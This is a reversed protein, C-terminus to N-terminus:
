TAEPGGGGNLARCERDFEHLRGGVRALITAVALGHIVPWTIPSFVPMLFAVIMLMVGMFYFWGWHTAGHAFLGLGLVTTLPPYFPLVEWGHHEVVGSVLAVCALMTGFQVAASLREVPTLSQWRSLLYWCYLGFWGLLNIGLVGYAWGSGHGALLLWEVVGHTFLALVSAFYCGPWSGMSSTLRRRSLVRSLGALWGPRRYVLPEGQLFRDLDEALAQASSYRDAPDKELCRLCITELDRPVQPRKERLGPAEEDRVRHLTVLWEDCGFPPRGALLEYLIVGLAHIDVATTLSKGGEVQEPAMYAATGTVSGAMSLSFTAELTLALGFDAIHPRGQGDFLINAPKLDRHLLGRQHAHHVGLAVDRVLAAAEPPSYCSEPLRERLKKALSGGEMLAMVLYPGGAEEGFSHIPVVAPHSLGAAAEAEFRFRAREEPTTFSGSLVRKVAVERRLVPDYARYVVGMGGRDLEEGLELGGLKQVGPKSELDLEGVTEEQESLWRRSAAQIGRQAALFGALEGALDPNGALWDALDPSQGAEEARLVIGIGEGLADDRGQSTADPPIGGGPRLDSGTENM